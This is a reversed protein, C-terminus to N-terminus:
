DLQEYTVGEVKANIKKSHLDVADIYKNLQNIIRWFLTLDASRQHMTPDKDLTQLAKRIKNLETSLKDKNGKSVKLQSDAAKCNNRLHDLQELTTKVSKPPAEKSIGEKVKDIQDIAAILQEDLRQEPTLKKIGPM